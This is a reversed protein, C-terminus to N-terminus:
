RLPPAAARDQTQDGDEGWNGYGAKGRVPLRRPAAAAAELNADATEVDILIGVEPDDATAITRLRAEIERIDNSGSTIEMFGNKLYKGYFM